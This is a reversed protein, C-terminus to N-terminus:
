AETPPTPEESPEAVPELVEPEPTTTEPTALESTALEPTASDPAVAAPPIIHPNPPVIPPNFVYPAPPPTAEGTTGENLADTFPKKVETEITSMADRMEAQLGGTVRRFEAMAKGMQRAAQPLRQPGLVLLAILLVLFIEGTGLNGM